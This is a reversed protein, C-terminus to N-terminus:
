IKVGTLLTRLFTFDAKATNFDTDSHWYDKIFAKPKQSKTSMSLAVSESFVNADKARLFSRGTFRILLLLGTKM